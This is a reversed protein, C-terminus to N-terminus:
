SLIIKFLNNFEDKMDGASNHLDILTNDVM